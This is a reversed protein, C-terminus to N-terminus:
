INFGCGWSELGFSKVQQFLLVAADSLEDSRQMAMTRARVRELAAEIKAERAQAEAKQLDLFRIYAQEFVRAIRKLVEIDNDSFLQRTWSNAGLLSNKEAIFSATYSDAQLLFERAPKPLTIFDNHKFVYNFYRNKEEFSYFKNYIHEGTEKANWVDMIIPNNDFANEDYPLNVCIPETLPSAVWIVANRSGETFLHIAAGGDFVLDLEKLKEFLISVVDKIEVSHHMGLSRSRIKELATEIRAERTQAEAKQLDLFRTYALDFVSTFQQLLEIIKESQPEPSSIGIYGNSFFAATMVRRKQNSKFPINLEDRLYCLYNELARGKLDLVFSKKKQKWDGIIKKFETSKSVDIFFPKGIEKGDETTAWMEIEKAEDKFTCIFCRRPDLGLIVLQQFVVAATEALEDTRQMAMTRARVRELALQIQSEKSQAEAKQLDLFRTYTQEFVRAFRKTLDFVEANPEKTILLLYGQKFFGVYYCQKSPLSLGTNELVEIAAAVSPITRLYAYHEELAKGEWIKEHAIDGRLSAKYIDHHTTEKKFPIMMPPLLGGSDAGMWTEVYDDKSWICFGCSWTEFGLEKIQQFLVAATDALETSQQMAMTRSRVRELAAEIELERNQAEVAKRKQELEDITEELLIATTRKVKETRDLKFETITIKKDTEKLNSILSAKEEESLHINKNIFDIVTQLNQEM